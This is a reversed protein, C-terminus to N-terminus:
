SVCFKHRVFDGSYNNRFPGDLFHSFGPLVLYFSFFAADVNGVTHNLFDSMLGSAKRDACGKASCM